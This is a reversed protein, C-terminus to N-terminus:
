NNCFEISPDEECIHNKIFGMDKKLLSIEKKLEANEADLDKLGQLMLPTLQIYDVSLYGFEDEKVLDPFVLSLEQAILGYDENNNSKWEYSVPRLKRLNSMGNRIDRINQKFRRDSTFQIATGERMILDLEMTRSNADGARQIYRSDLGAGGTSYCNEIVTSTNDVTEVNVQVKRTINKTGGTNDNFIFAIALQAMGFSTTGTRVFEGIRFSQIRVNGNGYLQNAVYRVVAPQSPDPRYDINAISAGSAPQGGMTANCSDVLALINRIDTIVANYESRSEITKVAKSQDQMLKAVALALGGMLAAAIMIEMLSFGSQKM